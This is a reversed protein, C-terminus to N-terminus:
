LNAFPLAGEVLDYELREHQIHSHEEVRLELLKTM